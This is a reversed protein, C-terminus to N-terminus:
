NIYYLAELILNSVPKSKIIISVHQDEIPFWVFSVQQNRPDWLLKTKNERAKLFVIDAPINDVLIGFSKEQGRKTVLLSIARTVAQDIRQIYDTHKDILKSM